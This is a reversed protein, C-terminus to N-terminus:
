VKGAPACVDTVKDSRRELPVTHNCGGGTYSDLNETVALAM